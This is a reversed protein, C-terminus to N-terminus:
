STSTVVNEKEKEKVEKKKEVERPKKPESYKDEISEKGSCM